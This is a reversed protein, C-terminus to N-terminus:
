AKEARPEYYTGNPLSVYVNKGAEVKVTKVPKKADKSDYIEFTYTDASM